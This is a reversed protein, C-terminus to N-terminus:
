VKNYHIKRHCNSCVVICKDLERKIAELSYGDSVMYAIGREKEESNKHHFDLVAPHNESCISCKLDKKYDEFWKKISEKRRKVHRKESLSNRKYWERRNKRRKEADKFPM